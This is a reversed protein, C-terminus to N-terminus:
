GDLSKSQRFSKLHLQRSGLGMQGVRHSKVNVFLASKKDHFGKAVPGADQVNSPTAIPRVLRKNFTEGLLAQSAKGILQEIGIQGAFTDIIADGHQAVVHPIFGVCAQPNFAILDPENFISIPIPHGIVRGDKGIAKVPKGIAQSRAHQRALSFNVKGIDWVEPQQLIRIPIPDGFFPFRQMVPKTSAHAKQAMIQVPQSKARISPQIKANAISSGTNLGAIAADYPKGIGTTDKATLGIAAVQFDVGVAQSVGLFEGEICM